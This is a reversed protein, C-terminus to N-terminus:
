GQELAATPDVGFRREFALSTVHCLFFREILRVGLNRLTWYLLSLLVRVCHFELDERMQRRYDLNSQIAQHFRSVSIDHYDGLYANEVPPLRLRGERLLILVHPFWHLINTHWTTATSWTTEAGSLTRLIASLRNESWPQLAWCREDFERKTSEPARSMIFFGDAHSRYTLFARPHVYALPGSVIVDLAAAQAVMLDFALQMRACAGGELEAIRDLVFGTTQSFFDDRLDAAASGTWLGELEGFVPADDLTVEVPGIRETCAIMEDLQRVVASACTDRLEVRVHLGQEDRLFYTRGVGGFTPLHQLLPRVCRVLLGNQDAARLNLEIWRTAPVRM